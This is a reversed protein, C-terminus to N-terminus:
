RSIKTLNLHSFRAPFGSPDYSERAPGCTSLLVTMSGGSSGNPVGLMGRIPEFWHHEIIAERTKADVYVVNVKKVTVTSPWLSVMEDEGAQDVTRGYAKKEDMGPSFEYPKLSSCLAKMQPYSIIEDAVPAVFILLALMPAVKLVQGDRTMGLWKPIKIGLTISIVIWLGIVFVFFIGTM